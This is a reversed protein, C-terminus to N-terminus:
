LIDFKRKEVIKINNRGAAKGESIDMVTVRGSGIVKMEEKELDCVLATDESIGYGVLIGENFLAELLRGQRQREEFHQDIIGYKFFGLGKTILLVGKEEFEPKKSYEIYDRCPAEKMAGESTGRAIMSTSMTAAGASSGGIVGGSYLIERMCELLRTDSGDPRLFGRIIKIQDGGGFWVGTVGELFDLNIFNDGCVKWSISEEKDPDVRVVIIRDKNVGCSHFLDTLKESAEFTDGAATPVIAIKANDGGALRIFEELIVKSKVNGGAIVLYGKM